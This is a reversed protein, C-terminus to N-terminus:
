LSTDLPRPEVGGAGRSADWLAPVRSRGGDIVAETSCRRLHALCSDSTSGVGVAMVDALRSLVAERDVPSTTPLDLYAPLIAGEDGRGMHSGLVEVFAGSVTTGSADAPLAAVLRAVSRTPHYRTYVLALRSSPPVMTARWNHITPVDGDLVAWEALLDDRESWPPAVELVTGASTTSGEDVVFDVLAVDSEPGSTAEECAATLCIRYAYDAMGWYALVHPMLQPPREASAVRVLRDAIRPVFDDLPWTRAVSFPETEPADIVPLVRRVEAVGHDAAHGGARAMTASVIGFLASSPDSAAYELWSVLFGATLASLGKFGQILLALTQPGTGQLAAWTGDVFPWVREDGLQLLGAVLGARADDLAVQDFLTRVYRPGSLPDQDELPLLIAIELAATAVVSPDPDEILFPLLGNTCGAGERMGHQRHLREVARAVQVAIQLRVGPTLRDVGVRYIGMLRSVLSDHSQIGYSLCQYFVLHRLLDPDVYPWRGPDALLAELLEITQTDGTGDLNM